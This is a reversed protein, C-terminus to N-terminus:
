INKRKKEIEIIIKEKQIIEIIDEIDIIDITTIIMTDKKMIILIGINQPIEKEHIQDLAHVPIIDKIIVEPIHAIDKIEILIQLIIPIPIM